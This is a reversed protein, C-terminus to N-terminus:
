PDAVTSGFRLLNGDPDTHSGEHQGWDTDVPRNVVLEAAEWECALANADDVGLYAAAATATPDRKPAV